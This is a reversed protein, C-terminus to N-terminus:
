LSHSCHADTVLRQMFIGLCELFASVLALLQLLTLDQPEVNELNLEDLSATNVCLGNSGVEVTKRSGFVSKSFQKWRKPVKKPNKSTGESLNKRKEQLISTM